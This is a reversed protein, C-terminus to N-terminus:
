INEYGIRLEVSVRDGKAYGRGGKPVYLYGNHEAISRDLRHHPLARAHLERDENRYVLVTFYFGVRIHPPVDEDLIAPVITERHNQRLTARIVPVVYFDFTMEEGGPPGVVGIVPTGDVVAFCTQKGPGHEVSSFHLKGVEAISAQLLDRRGRGSGGGIVVIDATEAAQRLQKQLALSDDKLIPHLLAKGGWQEVKSRMSYTNSEITQGTLPTDNCAVLEDGCPLLAVVPKQYVPVTLNGGSAMLNLHSPRILTDRAVLVEGIRMREGVPIVNQGRRIPEIQRIAHLRGDRFDTDEIKVMTDFDDNFIGIGTNTFGYDVGEEWEELNRRDRTYRAFNFSIGDWRSCPTAPLDLKSRIDKAAVRGCTEELPLYETGLGGKLHSGILRIAEQRPIDTIAAM